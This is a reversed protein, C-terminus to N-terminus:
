EERQKESARMQVKFIEEKQKESARMQVKFIETEYEIETFMRALASKLKTVTASYTEETEQDANTVIPHHKNTEWTWPRKQTM